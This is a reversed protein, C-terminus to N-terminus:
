STIARPATSRTTTTAVSPSTTRATPRAGAVLVDNGAEGYLVDLGADGHVTDNGSGGYLFDNGDSGSIRDADAGGQIVDDGAEGYLDDLGPGGYLDDDGAGGYITDNGRDAPDGSSDPPSGSAFDGDLTDAGAGGDLYDDGGGGTLTDDDDGGFLTDGAAGGTLTDKGVGGSLSSSKTGAVLSDDGDGGTFDVLVGTGAADLVDADSGSDGMVLRVGDFRQTYGFATVFVSGNDPHDPDVPRILFVEATQDQAVNRLNARDGVNLMLVDVNLVALAPDIEEEIGVGGAAGGSGIDANCGGHWALIPSRPEYIVHSTEGGVLGFPNGLADDM